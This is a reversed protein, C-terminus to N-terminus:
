PPKPQGSCPIVVTYSWNMVIAQLRSHIEFVQNKLPKRGTDSRCGLYPFGRLLTGRADAGPPRSVPMRCGRLQYLAETSMAVQAWSLRNGLGGLTVSLSM